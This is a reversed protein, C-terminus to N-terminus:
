WFVHQFSDEPYMKMAEHETSIMMNQLNKHMEPAMDIGDEIARILKPKLRENKLKSCRLESHSRKLRDAKEPTCLFRYNVHSNPAIKDVSKEKKVRCALSRLTHRHSEYCTCRTQTTDSSLLIVCVTHCITPTHCFQNEEKAIETGSFIINIFIVILTM